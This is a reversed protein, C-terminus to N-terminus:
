SIGWAQLLFDHDVWPTVKQYIGKHSVGVSEITGLARFEEALALIEKPNETAASILLLDEVRNQQCGETKTITFSGLTRAVRIRIELEETPLIRSRLQHPGMFMPSGLHITFFLTKRPDKVRDSFSGLPTQAGTEHHVLTLEDGKIHFFPKHLDM